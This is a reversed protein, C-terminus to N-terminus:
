VVSLAERGELGILVADELFEALRQEFVDLALARVMEQDVAEPVDM